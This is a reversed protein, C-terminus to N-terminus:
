LRYDSLLKIQSLTIASKDTRKQSIHPAIAKQLHPSLSRKKPIYPTRDSKLFILPRDSNSSTPLAIATLILSTQSPM